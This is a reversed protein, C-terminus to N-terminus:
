AVSETSYIWSQLDELARQWGEGGGFAAVVDRRSGLQSITPLNLVEPSTVDDIGVEVYRQLLAELVKRATESREALEAHHGERVRKAREARTRAPQNWALHLLLDFPDVGDADVRSLLDEDVGAVKLRAVADARSQPDAWLQALATVSPALGRVKEAVYTGYETLVLKGTSTDPVQLAEALVEFDGADVVYRTRVRQPPDGDMGAEVGGESGGPAPDGVTFAPTPEEVGGVGGGDLDSPEVAVDIAEGDGDVTQVITHVPYGDFDPDQFHQSAGVFDIIEFSTKGKEPYLRTGRGVIQKFEVQSGVPRMIVVYKLDEVDIGTALLRSTTAVLPSDRDPDSLDQILRRKEGEDGTIRVVWEPDERTWDPALAVLDRRMQEAHEVDYCFVIARGPADRLRGMLFRAALRTRALLRLRSEFDRTTYVGDEIEQGHVDLEGPTPQWGEADPSLVVRRVRYPALYGDEIGQRLTYQFVPEGFYRYTDVTEEQKPTATLGLQVAGSFHDLVGRWSSNESASGRHCEDVIVLNFFDEPYEMLAGADGGGSLSQYTAFIIDRAKGARGGGVRHLPDGGFAIGFDKDIPQQVLADRDALYLVRYNGLPDVVDRYRRLKQVIQMATFTKGTGTAMLLLLRHQGAAMRTLVRNVAVQQYWRPLVIDGSATHKQRNFPQQLLLAERSELGTWALYDSWLEVPGRFVEVDRETGAALDHEIISTGNTAYAVPVDLQQAYRLSQGLGERAYRYQRKAEVVAVPLGPVIELVYDVRGDGVDRQVNGVSVVRQARVPFEPRIQDDAWGAARLAPRVLDRCTDKELPSTM